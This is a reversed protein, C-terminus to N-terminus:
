VASASDILEQMDQLAATKLAEPTAATMVDVHNTIDRLATKLAVIQSKRTVDASEDAQFYKVDLLELAPARLTRLHNKRIDRAKVLDIGIQGNTDLMWADRFYRDEPLSLAFGVALWDAPVNGNMQLRTAEAQPTLGSSISEPTLLSTSIGGDPRSWIINSM